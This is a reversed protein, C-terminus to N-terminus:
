SSYFAVRINSALENALSVLVTLLPSVLVISANGLEVSPKRSDNKPFGEHLLKADCRPAPCRSDDVKRITPMHRRAM